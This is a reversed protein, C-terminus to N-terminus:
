VPNKGSDRHDKEEGHEILRRPGLGKSAANERAAFDNEDPVLKTDTFNIYVAFRSVNRM